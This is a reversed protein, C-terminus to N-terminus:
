RSLTLGSHLTSIAPTNKDLNNNTTQNQINKENGVLPIVRFKTLAPTIKYGSASIHIELNYVGAKANKDAILWSYSATGLNNSAITFDRTIGTKLGSSTLSGTVIANSIPL